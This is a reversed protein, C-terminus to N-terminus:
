SDRSTWIRGNTSFAILFGVRQITTSESDVPTPGAYAISSDGCLATIRVYEATFGGIKRDFVGILRFWDRDTDAIRILM